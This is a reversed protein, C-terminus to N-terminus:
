DATAAGPAAVSGAGAYKALFDQMRTYFEARHPETFFGHGEKPFMLWEHPKHAKALADRLADANQIPVRKDAGGSAILVPVKFQELLYLPSIARAEERTAAVAQGFYTRGYSSRRTDSRDFQITLDTVGVYDIACKFLDPARIPLMLAAYGGYSGGYVCIRAPDIQGEAIAWRVGDIMDDIMGTGWQRYGSRLFNEGRGGSGRYNIKLVAYGRNALFQATPDYFWDDAPGIPGGHPNVVLPLNRPARGAPLTLYGALDTGSRNRYRIPTTAAMRAPDIWPATQYLPRLHMSTRDLLAYVGPSRDSEAAILLTNGDRSMSAIAVLQDAFQTGLATIVDGWPTDGVTIWRPRGGEILAAYPQRPEPTFRVAGVSFFPDSALVRSESGDLRAEVLREPGGDAGDLAYVHERDPSLALPSWGKGVVSAPMLSWTKGADTTRYVVPDNNDNSGEAYWPKGDAVVFRMNGKDISAIEVPFGSVTDVDFLLTRYTDYSQGNRIEPAPAIQLYLHGNYSSPIGVVEPYGYPMRLMASNAGSGRAEFSYLIRQQSGDFNLAVIEGTLGPADLTGSERAKEVILRTPSVWAIRAPQTWPAMNLKTLPKLSPLELVALQYRSSSDDDNEERVSVALYNGGPSLAPSGLTVHRAFDSVPLLPPAAAAMAPVAADPTAAVAVGGGCAGWAILLALTGAGRRLAQGEM